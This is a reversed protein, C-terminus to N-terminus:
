IDLYRTKYGIDEGHRVYGLPNRVVKFDYVDLELAQHSHGHIWAAIRGAHQQMLKSLDTAYFHNQNSARFSEDICDLLPLHHTVVVAKQGAPIAALKEQLWKLCRQHYATFEAALLQGGYPSETYLLDHFKYKLGDEYVGAVPDIYSFLPTCLFLQGSVLAEHGFYDAPLCGQWMDHNGYCAVVAPWNRYCYRMADEGRSIAARYNNPVKKGHYLGRSIDGAIVLVDAACDNVVRDKYVLNNFSHDVHLDSVYQIRIM